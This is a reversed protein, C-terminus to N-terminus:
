FRRRHGLGGAASNEIPRWDPWADFALHRTVNVQEGGAPRVLYVESNSGRETAYAIWAADPSWAPVGDLFLDQTLNEVASGDARM